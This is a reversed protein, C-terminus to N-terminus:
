VAVGAGETVRRAVIRLNASAERLDLLSSHDLEEAELADALEDIQDALDRLEVVNSDTDTKDYVTAQWLDGTHNVRIKWGKGAATAAESAAVIIDKSSTM